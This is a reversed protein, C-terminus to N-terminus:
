GSRNDKLSQISFSNLIKWACRGVGSMERCGWGSAEDAGIARFGPLVTIAGLEAIRVNLSIPMRSSAKAFLTGTDWADSNSWRAAPHCFLVRIM